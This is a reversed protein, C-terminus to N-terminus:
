RPSIGFYPVAWEIFARVNAHTIMVGKPTGTSGSTFLIHAGDRASNQYALPEASYGALDGASFQPEVGRPPPTADLWGVAHTRAFEPSAFLRELTPGVPGGALIWRNDCATIMKEARAAPSGPDLPVYMADAKLAALIAVITEPSKPSLLCVRDGRACGADKLLRALRNSRAELEGYSVRREQFVLAGADPRRTAQETVWHQLLHSM